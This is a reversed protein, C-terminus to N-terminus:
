KSVTKEADFRMRKDHEHECENSCVYGGYFSKKATNEGLENINYPELDSKMQIGCNICNYTKNRRIPTAFNDLIKAFIQNVNNEM